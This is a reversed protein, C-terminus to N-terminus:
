RISGEMSIKRSSTSTRTTRRSSAGWAAGSAVTLGTSDGDVLGVGRTADKTGRGLSRRTRWEVLTLYTRRIKSVVM